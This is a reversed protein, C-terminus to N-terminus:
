ALDGDLIQTETADPVAVEAHEPFVLYALLRPHARLLVTASIATQFNGHASDAMLQQATVFTM